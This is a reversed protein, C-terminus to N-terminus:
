KTEETRGRGRVRLHTNGGGGKPEPPPPCVLKRSLPRPLWYSAHSPRPLWNPRLSLCELQYELYYDLLAKM